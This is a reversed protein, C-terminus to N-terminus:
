NIRFILICGLSDARDEAAIVLFFNLILLLPALQLHFVRCRANWVRENDVTILLFRAFSTGLRLTGLNDCFIILM